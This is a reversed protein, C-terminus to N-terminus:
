RGPTSSHKDEYGASGAEKYRDSEEDYILMFGNRIYFVEKLVEMLRTIIREIDLESGVSQGFDALIQYYDLKRRRFVHDIRPKLRVYYAAFVVLALSFIGTDIVFDMTRQM